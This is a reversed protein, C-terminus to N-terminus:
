RPGPEVQASRIELQTTLYALETILRARESKLRDIDRQLGATLAALDAFAVATARKPSVTPAPSLPRAPAEVAPPQSSHVVYASCASMSVIILALCLLAKM